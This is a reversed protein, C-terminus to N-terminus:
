RGYIKHLHDMIKNIPINTYIGALWKMKETKPTLKNEMHVRLRELVRNNSTDHGWYHGCVMNNRKKDYYLERHNKVFWEMDTIFQKSAKTNTIMSACDEIWSTDKLISVEKLSPSNTTLFKKDDKESHKNGHKSEIRPLVNKCTDRLQQISNEPMDFLTREYTDNNKSTENRKTGKGIRQDYDPAYYEQMRKWSANPGNKGPRWGEFDNLMTMFIFYDQNEGNQNLAEELSNLLKQKNRKIVTEAFSRIDKRWQDISMNQTKQAFASGMDSEKNSDNKTVNDRITMYSIRKEHLQGYFECYVGSLYNYQKNLLLDTFDRTMNAFGNLVGYMAYALRYDFMGKNQMFHLLQEWEDGKILVAAMSSLLGNDWEQNFEEGRVHRRLQNLYTRIPSNDWDAGVINKAAKTIEDSLSEKVSNVKGNFSDSCLVNNVWYVFLKAMLEDSINKQSVLKDRSSVIIEADEPNLLKKSSEVLGNAKSIEKKIWIISPNHEADSQLGTILSNRDITQFFYGHRKFVDFIRNVIEQSGVEKELDLFIPQQHELFEFLGNLRNRQSQSPVRDYSSIISSFINQIERLSDLKQIQEKTSSLNAGIYYGYLLGKMKNIIYDEEIYRNTDEVNVNIGDQIIPYKGDFSTVIMQRQYLRVMKTELSSDSLSLVIKKVSDSFFYIKTQWPNLYITKDSYYVGDTLKRYEDDTSIEILMEHDEMDSSPREFKHPSDFLLTINEINNEEISWWRSYGFGRKEYFVKPSISETSLINNFNLSSTPIYYKM